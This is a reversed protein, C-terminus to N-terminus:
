ESLLGLLIEVFPKVEAEKVQYKYDGGSGTIVQVFVNGEYAEKPYGVFTIDSIRQTDVRRPLDHILFKPTLVVQGSASKFLIEM